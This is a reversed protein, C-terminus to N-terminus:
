CKFNGDNQVEKYMNYLARLGNDDGSGNDMILLAIASDIEGAHGIGDYSKKEVNLAELMVLQQNHVLELEKFEREVKKELAEDQATPNSLDEYGPLVVYKPLSMNREITANNKRALNKLAEDVIRETSQEVKDRFNTAAENNLQKNAREMLKRCLESVFDETTM